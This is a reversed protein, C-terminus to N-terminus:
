RGDIGFMTWYKEPLRAAKLDPSCFLHKTFGTALVRGDEVASIQYDFQVIRPHAKSVRTRVRVEEDYRAPALYRCNAEAVTLLVGDKSEMESYRFGLSRCLETRGLEMWILYNSHYVVGMQDTEAYRVRLRVDGPWDAM